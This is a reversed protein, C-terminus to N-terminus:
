KNQIESKCKVNQKEKKGNNKTKSKMVKGDQGIRVAWNEGVLWGVLWGEGRASPWTQKCSGCRRSPKKVCKQTDVELERHKAVVGTGQDGGKRCLM